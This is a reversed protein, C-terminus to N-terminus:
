KPEREQKTHMAGCLCPGIWMDCPEGSGNYRPPQSIPWAVFGSQNKSDSM